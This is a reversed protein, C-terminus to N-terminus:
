RVEELSEAPLPVRCPNVAVSVSAFMAATVAIVWPQQEALASLECPPPGRDQDATGLGHSAREEAASTARAVDGEEDGGAGAGVRDSADEPV